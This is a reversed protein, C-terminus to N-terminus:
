PHDDCDAASASFPRWSPTGKENAGCRNGLARRYPPQRAAQGPLAKFPDAFVRRLETAGHLFDALKPAQLTEPEETSAFIFGPEAEEQRQHFFGTGGATTGDPPHERQFRDLAGTQKQRLKRPIRRREVRKRRNHFP